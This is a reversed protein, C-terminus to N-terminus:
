HIRSAEQHNGYVTQHELLPAIRAGPLNFICLFPVLNVNDNGGIARELLRMDTAIDPYIRSPGDELHEIRKVGYAEAPKDNAPFIDGIYGTLIRKECCHGSKGQLFLKTKRQLDLNM